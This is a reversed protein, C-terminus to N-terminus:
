ASARVHRVPNARGANGGAVRSARHHRYRAPDDPGARRRCRQDHDGQGQHRDVRGGPPVKGTVLGKPSVHLWPPLPEDDALTAEYRAVPVVCAVRSATDFSLTLVGDLVMTEVNITTPAGGTLGSVDRLSGGVYSSSSFGGLGDTDFTTQTRDFRDGRENTAAGSRVIGAGFVDLPQLRELPQVNNVTSLVIDEARIAISQEQDGTTQNVAALVADKIEFKPAAEADFIVPPVNRALPLISPAVNSINCVFIESASAGDQDTATVTVTFSGRQGAEYTPTGSIRGSTANITMGPPLGKASYTLTDGVNPDQFAPAMDLTIPTGSTGAQDPTRAVVVPASNTADFTFTQTAVGGHGDDATVIVTYTGDLTGGQGKTQPATRAADPDLTGTIRGTTPDISLGPPLSTASYTLPQGYPDNFHSATDIPAITTGDGAVVGPIPSNAIPADHSLTWAFTETAAAGKDDTATVMVSYPGNASASPDITGTIKGTNPDIALGKPLGTAAYTLTDGTNPDSFAQSVDVSVPQSDANHQDATKTGIVPANNTADFTFTQTATGGQGDDATVVVTYKGDLTAGSGTHTPANASADHDVKGTIMGTMPDIALGVPLGSVSYTLPLGNPNNFHSGADIPAITQGDPGSAPAIAAGATPPNNDVTWAFTETTAAGKDDTATVMVGYPGNASANPDITGTIKGTNPDISLGKPLGTAVYTLMDGTNADSFAKSADVSVPQSDANHQDATNAGIVPANNTADFTFTQSAAGGQGDRATVTITYTGDLTAGSGSTTPANKSADHDVAGTIMGTKPDIMLGAPLGSASYTLPQGNPNNFHSGTEIPAIAQGDAGTAPAIAAGATPPNNDINWTFTETTAAGKDDTATVNVTYTPTASANPDIIGTIKGTNPDIALGKPLGTAAYTLTDGTNPDGFAKSADVSVMAGDANVQDPTKTGIVPADNTADFTFTQIATGGQGDKAIVTVTYTGDLTAGSGETTPANKSADHDVAGTIMGTMPDIMLGAPLGTATYTLPQGNPNNFHSGTDIPAIAQGDPGSM